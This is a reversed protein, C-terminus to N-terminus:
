TKKVAPIVGLVDDQYKQYGAAHIHVSCLQLVWSLVSQRIDLYNIASVDVIYNRKTFIGGTIHLLNGCRRLCFNKNRIFNITFACLWGFILVYALAAAAPPIGFALLQTIHEFTGYIRDSFENGLLQGTQSILTSIFFIGAFSSSSFAALAAIYLNKPRYQRTLGNAARPQAIRNQLIRYAEDRHVFLSLDNRTRSGALTDARLRAARFPRLYFPYVVSLTSIRTIPIFIQRHILIGSSMQLGKEDFAYSCSLWRMASFAFILLVVLIDLWAGALWLRLGGGLATVFGRAFPILLMFTFAKLNHVITFPHPRYFTTKM